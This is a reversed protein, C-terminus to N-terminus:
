GAAPLGRRGAFRFRHDCHMLKCDPLEHLELRISVFLAACCTSKVFDGFSQRVIAALVFIPNFALVFLKLASGPFTLQAACSIGRTSLRFWRRTPGPFKVGLRECFGSTFIWFLSANRDCCLTVTAAVRFAKPKKESLV